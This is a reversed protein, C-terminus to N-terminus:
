RKLDETVIKMQCSQNDMPKGGSSEEVKRIAGNTCIRACIGCGMCLDPDIQIRDGAVFFAPCGFLDLCIRCNGCVACVMCRSAERRAQEETLPKLVEHDSRTRESRDIEAPRERRERILRAIYPKEPEKSLDPRDPPVIRNAAERGRLSLDIGWAARRGSAMADTVNRSEPTVDGGAFIQPHSTQGTDPNIRISGDPNRVLRLDDQTLLDPDPSQGIAAIVQDAEILRESGPIPVPTRRGSADPDGQRTSIALIGKSDLRIPLIQTVMEVGEEEAERIEDPLAPMEERTRRYAITAKEAGQRLATRAADLAANGGGVVVVRRGTEPKQGLNAAKLYQMSEVVEPHGPGDKGEIELKQWTQAGVALFIADFGQALLKKLAIDKGLRTKGKFKVGLDLIRRIDRDLAERPLRYRPIGTRLLGGPKDEADFLTVRYGRLVLDHAAALGAPGAGIVAIRKGNEPEIEPRYAHEHSTSWEVVFRKLANVAVPEDLDQRVCVSECPHHCVRCVTEPLATERLILNMADRYEGAAILNTYGKICLNLPCRTACPDMDPRLIGPDCAEICRSKAMQREYREATQVKCRHGSEERGCLRCRGPDIEYTATKFPLGTERSLHVPCARELIVVSTGTANRARELVAVTAALDYPDVVEVHPAGLARVVSEISVERRFRDGEIVVTPSEQFGTMATVQNDLIVAVMNANEKVANFLAPMGSHFFTSDGMIGVTRKGTMRSVGAALSFGAGMCLLADATDIPPGYALSYCGIDNFYLTEDGFVTRLAFQSARHPCGPCLMPPRPPVPEMPLPEPPEHGIGFARHIGRLIIEPEYEFEFPFHGTRKGLLEISKRNLFCLARLHDELYPSLEEIVLLREVGKLSELLQKEPIPYVCGLSIFRLKELLGNEKLVDVTAAAAEGSALIAIKGRGSTKLFGSDALLSRAIEIRSTVEKRLGRANAPVPVLRRPDKVFGRVSPKRLKGFTIIERSHCVRTLPRLLVPLRSKESLEFAFRTMDYADQPTSPDLVPIHLMPGLYRHDQENPSTRCSPDGASVIVMGGVTGVYPITSIPDGAYMLGLHKMACISRAGALSAAFAMEVSLKENVSYEFAIGADEAIRAFCDTIESSPTGPYGAAFAVGAELAGRVIAENGLLCETHGEEDLLLPDVPHDPM